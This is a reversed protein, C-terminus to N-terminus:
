MPRSTWSTPSPPLRRERDPMGLYASGASTFAANWSISLLGFFFGEMRTSPCTIVISGPIYAYGGKGKGTVM